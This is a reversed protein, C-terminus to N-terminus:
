RPDETVGESVSRARVSTQTPDPNQHALGWRALLVDVQRRLDDLTGANDMIIDARAFKDTHSWQANERAQVEKETWGRQRAIRELRLKRPVNVFVIMDCLDDWGAELLVAADLVILPVAPDARLRALEERLRQKIWPHVIRELEKLEEGKAFVIGGLKRRNVEGREDLVDTGWRRVIEARLEPQRLAEHGAEDGSVVVAGMEAFLAAVQSKGSGIGGVLGIVKPSSPISM